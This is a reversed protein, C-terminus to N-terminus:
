ISQFGVWVLKQRNVLAFRWISAKTKALLGTASQPSNPTCMTYQGSNSMNWNYQLLYFLLRELIRGCMCKCDGAIHSQVQPFPHCIVGLGSLSSPLAACLPSLLSACLMHLLMLPALASSKHIISSM